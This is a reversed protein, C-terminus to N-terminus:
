KMSNVLKGTQRYTYMNEGIERATRTLEEYPTDAVDVFGIAYGEGDWRGTLPQDRFQFWHTGVINPHTLAGQVFRAYAFAREEQTLGAPALGPAFMGRDYIGFHFEGILVPMDPFAEVWLNAVGHAYINVTLVDSYKESAEFLARRVSDTGIFRCGLYLRHPAVRKIADRSLRFYQDVAKLFFVNSDERFGKSEPVERNELFADWSAYNTEWSKNLGDISGYKSKLDKQLELKAAQGPPCRLVDDTLMQRGRNGFNLENDIFYGICMPDTLSKLVIPSKEGAAKILNEMADIYKPDFVDYFKLKSGKLQPLKTDHDTLQLTYPMKGMNMLDEHGWNGITNIGWHELRQTLVDFFAANYDDTQYKKRLNWDTFPLERQGKTSFDFWEAHDRVPTADTHTRLVDIGQSYFLHGSPDVFWWKGQYKEVRFYGTAKLKPGNAWGGYENWEAPRESKKLEALENQYARVLDSSSHIKEKWDDHIYQGYEDIFPMFDEENVQHRTDPSRVLRINSIECDLLGQQSGEFPWQMQFDIWHIATSDVVKPGPVGEPSRYITAHPIFLHMTQKEGPNLAIGTNIEQYDKAEKEGSSIHMTLRLQKDKSLNEVDVAIAKASSFDWATAGEPPLLRFGANWSPDDLKLHLRGRGLEGLEVQDSRKVELQSESISLRDALLPATVCFGALFAVVSLCTHRSRASLKPFKM